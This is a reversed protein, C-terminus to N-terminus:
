QKRLSFIVGPFTDDATIIPIEKIIRIAENLHKKDGKVVKHPEIGIGDICVGNPTFYEAITVKMSTGDPMNYVGQIVGKGYSKEGILTGCGRDKIAGALM